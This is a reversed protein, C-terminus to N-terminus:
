RTVELSMAAQQQADAIRKQAIAFYGADIEIGIFNRGTQVCAVGTTGSGMFPDLITEGELTALEIVYQVQELPRACPHLRPERDKGFPAKRQEHYDRAFFDRRVPTKPNGWFIVPDWSYQVQTPRYQVFSKCAAFIRFGAPFWRHWRDANLMAQWVFIPGDGALRQMEAVAQRMFAEYAAPDDKHTDYKFGIGYPPDTVVADVSGAALTPLIELCDGLRLDIM